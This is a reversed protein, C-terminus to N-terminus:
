KKMILKQEINQMVNEVGHNRGIIVKKKAAADAANQIALDGRSYVKKQV